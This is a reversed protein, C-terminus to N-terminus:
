KSTEEKGSHDHFHKEYEEKIFKSAMVTLGNAFGPHTRCYEEYTDIDQIQQRFYDKSHTMGNELEDNFRLIHTRALVADREDMRDKLEKFQEEQHEELRKFQEEQSKKNDHRQVMFQIFSWLAGSGLVLGALSLYTTVDM